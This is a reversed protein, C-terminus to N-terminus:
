NLNSNPQWERVDIKGTVAESIISQRYEKLKQKANENLEIANDIEYVKNNLFEAIIKQEEMTPLIVPLSKLLEQSLSARTVLNMEKVFHIRPIQSRFFYRSFEKYLVNNTPRFRILFGAFVADEVTELCVSSIGIEEITESTRTFFVDGEAVSYNIKDDATSEVLGDVFRPLADNKYVDGYSVFPDGKGFYEGGKSIGNQCKGLYRLKIIDWHVPIEGLWEIGSHKMRVIPNLGKTVTENIIAQRKEKLLAIQKDKITIIEDILSTQIDLFNIISLQEQFSPLPISFNRINTISVGGILGSIANFFQSQFHNSQLIYFIFKSTTEDDVNFCALKNVFYVAQNTFGIKRGASGGEICLLACNKPAIKFNGFSDPIRTGNQYNIESTEVNIDKSAIYSLDEENDSEFLRKYDDNLSNGNYINAVYKLKVFQWNLPLEDLFLANVDRYKDYKGLQSM